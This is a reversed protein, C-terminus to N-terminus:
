LATKPPHPEPTIDRAGSVREPNPNWSVCVTTFVVTIIHKAPAEAAPCCPAVVVLAAKHSADHSPVSDSPAHHSGHHNMSGVQAMAGGAAGMLLALAFVLVAFIHSSRKM